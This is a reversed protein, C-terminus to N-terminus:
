NTLIKFAKQVELLKIEEENLVIESFDTDGKIEYLDEDSANGDVDINM